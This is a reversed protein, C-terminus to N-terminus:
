LWQRHGLLGARRRNRPPAPKKAAKEPGANPGTNEEAPARKEAAPMVFVAAAIQSLTSRKRKKQPTPAASAKKNGRPAPEAPTEAPEEQPAPAPERRSLAPMPLTQQVLVRKPAPAPAPEKERSDPSHAPAISRPSTPSTSPGAEPFPPPPAARNKVEALAREYEEKTQPISRDGREIAARLDPDYDAILRRQAESLRPGGRQAYAPDMFEIMRDLDLDVSQTLRIREATARREDRAEARRAQNVVHEQTQAREIEGTTLEGEELETNQAVTVSPQRLHGLDPASAVLSLSSTRRMSSSMPLASVVRPPAETVAVLPEEIADYCVPFRSDNRSTEAFFRAWGDHASKFQKCEPMLTFSNPIPTNQENRICMRRSIVTRYLNRATYLVAANNTRDEDARRILVAAQALFAQLRDVTTHYASTWLANWMQEVDDRSDGIQPFILGFEAHFFSAVISRMVSRQRVFTPYLAIAAHRTALAHLTQNFANPYASTTVVLKVRQNLPLGGRGERAKRAFRAALARVAAGDLLPCGDHYALQPPLKYSQPGLTLFPDETIFIASPACQAAQEYIDSIYQASTYFWLPMPARLVFATYGSDLACSIACRAGTSTNAAGFMLLMVRADRATFFPAVHSCSGNPTFRAGSWPDEATGPQIRTYYSTDIQQQNSLSYLPQAPTESLPFPAFNPGATQASQAGAQQVPEPERRSFASGSIWAPSGQGFSPSAKGLQLLDDQDPGFLADQQMAFM